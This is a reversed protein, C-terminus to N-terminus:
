VLQFEVEFSIVQPELFIKAKNEITISSSWYRYL